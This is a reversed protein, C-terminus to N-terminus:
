SALPFHLGQARKQYSSDAGTFADVQAAVARGSLVAGELTAPLNTKTWDGALWFNEWETSSEPRLLEVAPSASFTASKAKYVFHQRVQAAASEPVLRHLERLVLQVLSEQDETALPNAGSIVAVYAHGEPGPPKEEILARSFVWHVPSDLLGLIMPVSPLPRDLWLYVSIITSDPIAACSLALSSTPPLLSRLANWPLASIVHDATLTDGQLTTVGNLRTGNFILQKVHTQLRVESGCMTLLETFERSFLESLGVRSLIIRSASANGFLARQLVTALLRASAVALSQNIAALCLPEWLARTLNLPQGLRLLWEQATEEPYPLPQFRLHGAFRIAALRDPWTLEGYNLLGGLLHFPAPLPSALLQTRGQPSAFALQLRPQEKLKDLVSLTALWELTQPYCGMLIHQGNDLIVGSKPERFSHARGGLQGKAELLTVRHGRLVLETAASLGALGGGLVLVHKPKPPLPRARRERRIARGILWAKTIKHHKLPPNQLRLGDQKIKHLIAEYVERMIEAAMMNPRDEPHLLRLSKAFYHRARLYQFHLLKSLAPSNHGALVQGETLGFRTIEDLPVYLRDNLADKQVDRLINTLQFALGLAVAYDRTQPQRYSFIEISVLGVASAVRYCYHELEAFTQYRSITLDMEVGDLIEELPTPPILYTRIIEAMELGLSSTPTSLYARRIEERWFGIGEKKEAFSLTESDAVDDVVRCFAYFISMARRREADLCFFALALNSGSRATIEQSTPSPSM